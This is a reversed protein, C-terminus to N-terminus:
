TAMVSIISFILIRVYSILDYQVSDSEYLKELEVHINKGSDIFRLIASVAERESEKLLPETTTGSASLHDRPSQGSCCCAGM